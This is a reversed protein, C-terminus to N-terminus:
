HLLLRGKPLLIWFSQRSRPRRMLVLVRYSILEVLEAELGKPPNLLLKLLETTQDKTLPLAPIGQAARETVHTQYADLM